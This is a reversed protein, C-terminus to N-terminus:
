DGGGPQGDNLGKEDSVALNPPMTSKAQCSGRRLLGGPISPPMDVAAAQPLYLGGPRKSFPQEAASPQCVLAGSYGVALDLGPDVVPAGVPEGVETREVSDVAALEHDVDVGEVM